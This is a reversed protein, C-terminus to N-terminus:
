AGRRTLKVDQVHLENADLRLTFEFAASPCCDADREAWAKGSGSMSTLDIEPNMKLDYGKPLQSRIEAITKNEVSTVGADTWTALEHGCEGTAAMCVRSEIVRSGDLMVLRLPELRVLAEDDQVAYLKRVIRSGSVGEYLVETLVRLPETTRAPSPWAYRASFLTRGNNEALVRFVMKCEPHGPRDWNPLPGNPAICWTQAKNLSVPGGDLVQGSAVAHSAALMLFGAFVVFSLRM